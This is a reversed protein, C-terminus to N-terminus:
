PAVAQVAVQYFPIKVGSCKLKGGMWGDGSAVLGDKGLVTCLQGQLSSSAAYFADNPSVELIIVMTKKPLWPGTFRGDGGGYAYPDQSDYAIAGYDPNSGIPTLAARYFYYSAGNSCVAPGGYETTGQVSITLVDTATCTLGEMEAKTSFYADEPHIADVVFMTGADLAPLEAPTAGVSALPKGGSPVQGSLVDIVAQYFYYSQGDSCMAPGGYMGGGNDSLGEPGATCTLGIMGARTSYYADAQSVDRLVFTTGGPLSQAFAPAALFTSAILLATARAFM